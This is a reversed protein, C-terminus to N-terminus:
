THDTPFLHLSMGPAPRAPGQAGNAPRNDVVTREGTSTLPGSLPRERHRSSDDNTRGGQRHDKDRDSDREEDRTRISSIVREPLLPGSGGRRSEERDRDESWRHEREDYKRHEREERERKVQDRDDGRWQEAKPSGHWGPSEFDTDDEFVDFRGRCLQVVILQLVHGIFEYLM